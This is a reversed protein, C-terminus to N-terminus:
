EYVEFIQVHSYGDRRFQEAIAEAADKRDSRVIWLDGNGDIGHVEYRKKPTAM